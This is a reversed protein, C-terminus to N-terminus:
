NKQKNKMHISFLAYEVLTGGIYIIFLKFIILMHLHERISETMDECAQHNM